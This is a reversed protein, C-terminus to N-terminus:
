FIAPGFTNVLVIKITAQFDIESVKFSPFFEPHVIPEATMITGITPNIIGANRSIRAIACEQAVDAGTSVNSMQFLEFFCPALAFKSQPKRQICRLHPCKLGINGSSLNEDIGLLCTEKAEWFVRPDNGDILQATTYRNLVQLGTIRLLPTQHLACFGIIM